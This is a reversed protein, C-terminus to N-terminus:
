FTEISYNENEIKWIIAETGNWTVFSDSKIRQAKELASLLMEKDDVATDPFKLEWGNFIIGSIKDTFLLIDPFKTKGSELKIGADNTADQFVTGNERIEQQIWSILQGAWVRENLKM